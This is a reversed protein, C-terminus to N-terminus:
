CAKTACLYSNLKLNATSHKLNIILLFIKERGAGAAIKEM